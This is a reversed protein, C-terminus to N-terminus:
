SHRELWADFEGQPLVIVDFEMNAHRLGCFEACRGPFRGEEPFVLDFENVYDPFADRKFRLYPIWFSHVVDRSTLRFRIETDVPVVLPAPEERTGAVKIGTPYTFAWQWQFGTVELELGPNDSVEDVRTETRFTFVLLVIALVLLIGAYAVEARLWASRWGPDTARRRSRVVIAVLIATVIVFAAGTIPLFVWLPDNFESRTDTV